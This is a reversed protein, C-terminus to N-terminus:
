QITSSSGSTTTIRTISNAFARLKAPAPSVSLRAEASFQAPYSVAALEAVRRTQTPSPSITARVRTRGPISPRTRVPTELLLYLPSQRPRPPPAESCAVPAPQESFHRQEELPPQRM